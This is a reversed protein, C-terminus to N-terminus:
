DIMVGRDYYVDPQKVGNSDWLELKGHRWGGVVTYVSKRIGNSYWEIRRSNAVDERYNYESQRQGNDYWMIVKGHLNNNKYEELWRKGDKYCRSLGDKLNDKYLTTTELFGHENWTEELGQKLGNVWRVKSKINSTNQHYWIELGHQTQQRYKKTYKILNTEGNYVTLLGHKFGTSTEIEASFKNSQPRSPYVL